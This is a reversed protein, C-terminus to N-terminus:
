QESRQLVRGLIKFLGDIEKESNDENMSIRVTSGIENRDLGIAKLVHSGGDDPSACAAGASICIGEMGLRVILEEADRGPITVSFIGPLRDRWGNKECDPVASLDERCYGNLHIRGSGKAAGSEEESRGFNYENLCKLFYRDLQQRKILNKEMDAHAKVAAAAMGVIGPVNETGGRRGQEQAGGHILPLLKFHENVYLFGTGKPGGFKHASASLMDINMSRVNIPIHGYAAVADVHFVLGHDHATKGIDTVPQVTGLENNVLMVSVFSTNRRIQREIEGPMVTGSVNPNVYSISCGSRELWRCTNLVAHHEFSTTIMHFAASSPGSGAFSRIAWNDAETGGSTFYIESPHAGITRAIEERAGAVARKAELGLDYIGGPNGYSDKLFPLMAELAEDGLRTTAANDMYIM